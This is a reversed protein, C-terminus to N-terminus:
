KMFCITKGTSKPNQTLMIERKKNKLESNYSSKLLLGGIGFKVLYFIMKLSWRFIILIKCM